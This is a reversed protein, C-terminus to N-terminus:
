KSLGKDKRWQQFKAEREPEPIDPFEILFAMYQIQEYDIHSPIM